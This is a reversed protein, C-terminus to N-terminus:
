SGDRIADLRRRRDLRGRIGWRVAASMEADTVGLKRLDRAIEARCFNVEHAGGMEGGVANGWRLLNDIAEYRDLQALEDDNM